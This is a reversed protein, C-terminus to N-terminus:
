MHFLVNFQESSAMGIWVLSQMVMNDCSYSLSFLDHSLNVSMMMKKKNIKKIQRDLKKFFCDTKSAPETEM